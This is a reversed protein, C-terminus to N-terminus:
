ENLCVLIIDQFLSSVTDVSGSLVPLAGAWSQKGAGREHGGGLPSGGGWRGRGMAGQMWIGVEM